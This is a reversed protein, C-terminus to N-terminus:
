GLKITTGHQHSLYEEYSEVEKKMADRLATFYELDTIIRKDVLIKVLVAQSVLANNIGVRLHKPQTESGSVFQKAAVGSQMAHCLAEYEDMIAQLENQMM